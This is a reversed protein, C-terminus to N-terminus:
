QNLAKDIDMQGNKNKLKILEERHRRLYGLEKYTMQYIDQVSLQGSFEDLVKNVFAM